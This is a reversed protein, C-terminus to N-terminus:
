EHNRHKPGRARDIPVGPDNKAGTGHEDGLVWPQTGCSEKTGRRTGPPTCVLAEAPIPLHVVINKAYKTRCWEKLDDSKKLVVGAPIGCTVLTRAKDGAEGTEPVFRCGKPLKTPNNENWGGLLLGRRDSPFLAHAMKEYNQVKQGLKIDVIGDQGKSGDAKTVDLGCGCEAMRMMAAGVITDFKRWHSAFEKFMHMCVRDFHGEHPGAVTSNPNTLAHDSLDIAANTSNFGAKMRFFEPTLPLASTFNGKRAGLKQATEEKLIPLTACGAGEGTACKPFNSSNDKAWSTFICQGVIQNKDKALVAAQHESLRDLALKDVENSTARGPTVVKPLDAETGALPPNRPPLQVAAYYECSEQGRDDRGSADVSKVDACSWRLSNRLFARETSIEAEERRQKCQAKAEKQLCTKDDGCNAKSNQWPTGCYGNTGVTLLLGVWIVSGRIRKKTRMNAAM